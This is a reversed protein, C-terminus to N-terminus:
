GWEKDKSKDYVFPAKTYTATSVHQHVTTFQESPPVAACRDLEDRVGEWYDHGQETDAWEFASSLLRRLYTYKNTTGNYVTTGSCITITNLSNCVGHWDFRSESWNINDVNNIIQYLEKVQERNM